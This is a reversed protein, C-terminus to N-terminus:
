FCYNEFFFTINLTHVKIKACYANFVYVIMNWKRLKADALKDSFICRSIKANAKVVLVVKKEQPRPTPPIQPQADMKTVPGYM